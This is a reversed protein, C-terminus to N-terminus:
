ATGPHSGNIHPVERRVVFGRRVIALRPGALAFDVYRNDPEPVARQHRVLRNRVSFQLKLGGGGGPYRPQNEQEGLRRAQRIRSIGAPRWGLLEPVPQTVGPKDDAREGSGIPQFELDVM